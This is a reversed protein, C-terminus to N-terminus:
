GGQGHHYGLKAEQYPLSPALGEIARWRSHLDKLFMKVAYRMAMNHRHLKSAGPWKVAEATLGVDPRNELRHKYDRYVTAYEGGARLLCPGAVGIMKTKLFMNFTISQREAPQGERNTYARTVLHEARRSRGAGDDAVDLGAYKWFSSPYPASPDLEAIIVAALIPGIGKVDQLFGDWLPHEAVMAAIERGLREENHELDVYSEVMAYEYPTSLIGAHEDLLARRKKINISGALASALLKHEAKLTDLTDKADSTLEDQPMGDEQGLQATFNRCIRNGTQIRLKQMMYFTNVLTKMAQKTQSEVSGGQQSLSVRKEEKPKKNTNAREHGKPKKDITAREV